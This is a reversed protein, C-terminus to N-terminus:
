QGPVRYFFARGTDWKIAFLLLRTQSGVDLETVIYPLFGQSRLSALYLDGSLIEPWWPLNLSGINKLRPPLLDVNTLNERLRQSDDPLFEFACWTRPSSPDYTVHIARSSEPLFSPIWGRGVEGAKTAESLSSYYWEGRERCAQFLVTSAVSLLTVTVRMRSLPLRKWVVLMANSYSRAFLMLDTRNM